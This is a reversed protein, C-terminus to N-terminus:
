EQIFYVVDDAHAMQLKERATKEILFPEETWEQTIVHLERVHNKMDQTECQSKFYAKKLLNLSQIGHSGYVFFYFFLMLEAVVVISIIIRKICIVM